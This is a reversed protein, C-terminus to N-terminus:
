SLSQAMEPTLIWRVAWRKNEKQELCNIAGNRFLIPRINEDGTILYSGLKELHPLHGVLMLETDSQNIKDAWLRVDDMPALGTTAEVPKGLALGIIESTQKARLKGSHYIRAPNLGMQKARDSVRKIENEGKITLSRQPDETEAKAEGHQVLYIKMRSEKYEEYHIEQILQKALRVIMETVPDSDPGDYEKIFNRVKEKEEDTPELIDAPLKPVSGPKPWPFNLITNKADDPHWRSYIRLSLELKDEDKPSWPTKADSCSRVENIEDMLYLFAERYEDDLLPIEIM